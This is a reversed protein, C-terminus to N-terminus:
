LDPAGFWALLGIYCAVLGLAGATLALGRRHAVRQVVLAIAIAPIAAYALPILFWFRVLMSDADHDMTAADIAREWGNRVMSGRM